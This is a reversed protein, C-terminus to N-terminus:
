LGELRKQLEDRERRTAELDFMMYKMDLRLQGLTEQVYHLIRQRRNIDEAARVVAQEFVERSETPLTEILSILESLETSTLSDQM